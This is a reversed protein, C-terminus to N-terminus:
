AAARARRNGSVSDRLRPDLLRQALDALFGLVLVMVTSFLLVGQVTTFDQEKIGALLLGGLGPLAFVTEILVAGVFTTALQIALISIVPVIGNRLGHRLIAQPFSQGMSRAMTLYNQGLVDLTASRVYRALDSGSVIAITLVPLALSQLAEGPTGWGASPFGGAPLIGWQLSVTRILLIGVWFVPIAVGLQTLASFATGYWTGSKWGAFFGGPLAIVVSLVFSILTLPLTVNLRHLLEPAVPLHSTISNGLDFRALQALYNGFQVYIPQDMGLRASLADIDAQSAGISILSYVPNGLVRLVVFLVTVSVLLSALM